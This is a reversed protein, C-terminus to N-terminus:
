QFWVELDPIADNIIRTSSLTIKNSMTFPCSITEVLSNGNVKLYFSALTVGRGGGGKNSYGMLGFWEILTHKENM